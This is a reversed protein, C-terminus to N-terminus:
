LFDEPALLPSGLTCPETFGDAHHRTLYNYDHLYARHLNQNCKCHQRNAKRSRCYGLSMPMRRSRMHPRLEKMVSGRMDMRTPRLLM